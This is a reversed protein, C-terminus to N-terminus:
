EGLLRKARERAYEPSWYKGSRDTQPIHKPLVPEKMGKPLAPATRQKPGSTVPTRGKVADSKKTFNPKMGMGEAFEGMLHQVAATIDIGPADKPLRSLHSHLQNRISSQLIAFQKSDPTIGYKTAEARMSTNFEERTLRAVQASKLQERKASEARSLVTQEAKKAERQYNRIDRQVRNFERRGSTISGMLRGLEAKKATVQAQLSAKEFDEAKALGAELVKIEQEVQGYSGVLTMQEQQISQAEEGLSTLEETLSKFDPDEALLAEPDPEDEADQALLAERLEKMEAHLRSSSNAQEFYAAVMADEDGGYKDLLKQLAPSRGAAPADEEVPAEEGTDTEPTEVQSDDEPATTVDSTEDTQEPSPSDTEPPADQVDPEDPM